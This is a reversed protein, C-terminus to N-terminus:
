RQEGGAAALHTGTRRGARHGSGVLQSVVSIVVTLLLGHLFTPARFSSPTSRLVGLQVASLRVKHGALREELHYKAILKDYSGDGRM